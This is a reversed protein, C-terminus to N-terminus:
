ITKQKIEKNNNEKSVQKLNIIFICYFNFSNYINLIYIMIFPQPSFACEGKARHRLVCYGEDVKLQDVNCRYWQLWSSVM